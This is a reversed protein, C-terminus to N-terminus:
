RVHQKKEKLSLAPSYKIQVTGNCKDFPIKSVAEEILEFDEPECTIMIKRRRDKITNRFYEASTSVPSWWIKM